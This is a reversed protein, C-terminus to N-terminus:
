HHVEFMTANTRSVKPIAWEIVKLWKSKDGPEPKCPVAGEKVANPFLKHGLSYPINVLTGYSRTTASKRIFKEQLSLRGSMAGKVVDMKGSQSHYLKVMKSIDSKAM